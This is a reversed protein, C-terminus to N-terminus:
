RANGPLETELMTWVTRSIWFWAVARPDDAGSRQEPRAGSKLTGSDAKLM